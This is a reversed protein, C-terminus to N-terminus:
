KVISIVSRDFHKLKDFELRSFFVGSGDGSRDDDFSSGKKKGKKREKKKGKKKEVNNRTM